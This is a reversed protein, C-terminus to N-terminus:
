PKTAFFEILRLITDSRELRKQLETKPPLRNEPDPSPLNTLVMSLPPLGLTEAKFKRPTKKEKKM